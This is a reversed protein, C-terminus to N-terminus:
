LCERLAKSGVQVHSRKVITRKRDFASM